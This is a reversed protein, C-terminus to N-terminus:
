GPTLFFSNKNLINAGKPGRALPSGAYSPQYPLQQPDSPRSAASAPASSEEGSWQTCLSNPGASVGARRTSPTFAVPTYVLEIKKGDGRPTISNNSAEEKPPVPNTDWLSMQESWTIKKTIGMRKLRVKPYYWLSYWSRKRGCEKREM